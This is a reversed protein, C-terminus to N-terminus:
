AELSARVLLSVLKLAHLTEGEPQHKESIIAGKLRVSTLQRINILTMNQKTKEVCSVINSGNSRPGRDGPTERM